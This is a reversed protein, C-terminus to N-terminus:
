SPAIALIAEPMVVGSPASVIAFATIVFWFHPFCQPHPLLLSCSHFKLFHLSLM